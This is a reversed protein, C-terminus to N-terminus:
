DEERMADDKVAQARESENEFLGGVIQVVEVCNMGRSVSKDAYVVVELLMEDAWSSRLEKVRSRCRRM